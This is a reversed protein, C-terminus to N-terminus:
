KRSIHSIPKCLHLFPRIKWSNREPHSPGPARRPLGSRARRLAAGLERASPNSLTPEPLNLSDRLGGFLCSVPFDGQRAPHSGQQVRRYISTTRICCYVRSPTSSSRSKASNGTPTTSSRKLRNDDRLNVVKENSTPGPTICSLASAPRRRVPVAGADGKRCNRSAAM